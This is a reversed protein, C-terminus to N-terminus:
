CQRHHCSCQVDPCVNRVHTNDTFISFVIPARHTPRTRLGYRLSAWVRVPVFGCVTFGAAPSEAEAGRLRVGWPEEPRPLPWLRGPLPGGAPQRAPLWWMTGAGLGAVTRPLGTRLAFHSVFSPTKATATGEDRVQTSAVCGLSTVETLDMEKEASPLM